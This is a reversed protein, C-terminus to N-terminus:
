SGKNLLSLVEKLNKLLKEAFGADPNVPVQMLVGLGETAEHFEKASLGSVICCNTMPNVSVLKKVFNIGDIDEIYEDAIVLDFTDKGILDFADQVSKAQLFKINDDKQLSETFEKIPNSKDSVLLLSIM